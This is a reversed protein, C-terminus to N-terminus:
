IRQWTSRAELARPNDCSGYHFKVQASLIHPLPGNRGGPWSFRWDIYYRARTAEGPAIRIVGPIPGAIYGGLEPSLSIPQGRFDRMGIPAIEGTDPNRILESLLCIPMTSRNTVKMALVPRGHAVARSLSIRLDHSHAIAPNSVILCLLGSLVSYRM